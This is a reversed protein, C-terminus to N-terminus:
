RSFPNQSACGEGGAGVPGDGEAGWLGDKIMSDIVGGQGGQEGARAGGLIYPGRRMSEVGGAVVVDAEGAQIAQCAMMVAKLGSGCVKNITTANVTDPLGAGKAAQRAPAQGVGASLVNGMIVEDVAEPPVQARRLAERIVCSGLATASMAGLAGHLNGIPTRVAGAIVIQRM